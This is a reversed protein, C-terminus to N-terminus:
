KKESTARVDIKVRVIGSNDGALRVSEPLAAKIRLVSSQTIEDMNVPNTHIVTFDEKRSKPVMVKIKEPEVTVATLRVNEPLNGDMKVKVPLEVETMAFARLKINRPDIQNVTLGSPKNVLNKEVVPIDQIGDHVMELDFSIVMVNPDFNFNRETGSMSVRAELPKPNDIIFNEPLNRWEIPVMFTRHITEARYAFFMWLAITLLLSLAKAGFNKRLWSFRKKTKKEPQIYNYFRNIRDTLMAASSLVELRGQEAVSITGREESVIIVFADSVESIGIGAAHRTGAENGEKVHQSLPLYVAFRDIKEGEIIVAGDHTPSETNFLGYILPFSIRGNLSVGGRIHRDLPEKGKIVLLAGIKNEALKRVAEILTGTTQSSAISTRKTHFESWVAFREIARRIDTQFVIVLTLLLATFGARFLWSTLYMDLRQACIYVLIVCGIGVVLSRSARQRLWILSFYLLVSIVTIDLIDAFRVAQL